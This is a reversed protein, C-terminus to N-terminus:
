RGDDSGESWQTAVSCDAIDRCAYGEMTAPMTLKSIPLSRRCYICTATITRRVTM